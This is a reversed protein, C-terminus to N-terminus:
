FYREAFRITDGPLVAFDATLPYVTEGAEGSRKVFVKKQNARYTFGDAKAVAGRITLGQVYPYEGPKNVEGLIYIPRFNLVQTSVKPELLYGQKLKDEIAHSVDDPQLGAAQIEGILPFSIAGSPSIEFDGTLSSEGYTVVKLKDGPSLKFAAASPPTSGAGAVPAQGSCASLLALAAALAIPARWKM